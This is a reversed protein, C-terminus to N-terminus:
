EYYVCIQERLRIKLFLHILYQKILVSNKKKKMMNTFSFLKQKVLLFFYVRMIIIYFIDAFFLVYITMLYTFYMFKGFIYVEM